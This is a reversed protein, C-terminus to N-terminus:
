TVAEAEPIAREPQPQAAGNHIRPEDCVQSPRFARSALDILEEKVEEHLGIVLGGKKCNLAHDILFRAGCSDCHQPLDVPTKTYRLMLSDRFEQASLCTSNLVSPSPVSLWQGTEPTRELTHITEKPLPQIASKFSSAGALKRKDRALKRAAKTNATHTIDCFEVHGNLAMILHSTIERSNGYNESASEVPHPLSMGGCKVPVRLLTRRYDDEDTVTNDKFLAPLLHEHIATEIPHFLEDMGKVARQIFQWEQQLSRMMASYATQPYRQGIKALGMITKEWEAVKEEIWKDREDADGIYGGLYHEGTVIKAFDLDKFYAEAAAKNHEKVVLICKEPEPLYGFPTPGLEQLSELYRRIGPFLAGIGADDAYWNQDVDKHKEGLTEILPLLGIGYAIMAIPDGQTFGNKSYLVFVDGNKGRVALISWHRYCNFCFQAGAPWKHRITWLATSREEENFGNSADILLFGLIKKDAHEDWLDNIAHIGGKIGGELGACLQM